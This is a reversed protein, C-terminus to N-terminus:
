KVRSAQRQNAAVPQAEGATLGRENLLKATYRQAESIREVEIAIADMSNQLQAMQASNEVQPRRPVFRNRIMRWGFVGVFVVAMFVALPERVDGRRGRGSEFPPPPLTTQTTTVPRGALNAAIQDNIVFLQAEIQGSRQDIAAIRADLEAGRAGSLSSRQAQLENRRQTLEKLQARLESQTSHLQRWAAEVEETRVQPAAVQPFTM